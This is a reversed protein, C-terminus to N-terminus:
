TVNHAMIKGVEDLARGHLRLTHRFAYNMEGAIREWRWMHIYRLELLTQMAPDPVQGIVGLIERKIDCLRDIQETIEHEFDVLRIMADEIGGSSSKVKDGGIHATTSLVRARHRDIQEQM